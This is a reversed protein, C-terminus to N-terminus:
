AQFVQIVLSVVSEATVVQELFEVIVLSVQTDVLEQSEQIALHVLSEAIALFVVLVQTDM